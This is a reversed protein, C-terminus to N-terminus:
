IETHKFSHKEVFTSFTYNLWEQDVQIDELTRKKKWIHTIIGETKVIVYFAKNVPQVLKNKM